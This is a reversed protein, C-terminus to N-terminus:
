GKVMFSPVVSGQKSVNVIETESVRTLFGALKGRAVLPDSDEYMDRNTLGPESSPYRVTAMPVRHQVIYDTALGTKITAEWSAADHHWGLEVGDGKAEHTPKLVLSERNKLLYEILDVRQGNPATTTGERLLRGWPVHDEVVAREAATLGLEIDPDTLLAFLAKHGMLEARFPNIMCIANERLAALLPEVSARRALVNRTLMLRYVLDIEVGDARLRTGDFELAEPVTTVLKAAGAELLPHADHEVAENSLGIREFWGILGVTPAHTGGWDRWAEMIARGVAPQLLLPELAHSANIAHFTDLTQFVKALEDSHGAGGPADANMEIFNLGNGARFGDLRTIAGHDTSAPELAILDGIWDYYRGLHEAERERDAVVHDRAKTLASSLVHVVHAQRKLESESVFHPRAVSCLPRGKLLLGREHQLDHLRDIDSAGTKALQADWLATVLQDATM